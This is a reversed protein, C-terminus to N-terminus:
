FKKMSKVLIYEILKPFIKYMIWNMKGLGSHIVKFKRKRIQNVILQSTKEVPMLKVNSRKPLTELEGKENYFKKDPDNETFSVYAIGVHVNQKHLEIKLSEAVATIAMKSASYSSYFPLGNIGALSSIFLISGHTEKIYPLAFKATYVSGLLNVDIMKKYTELDCNELLGKASLGANNIIIDIKNFTKVTENILKECDSINSVDGPVALIEYGKNILEQKTIDLGEANRANIILKAGLEGLQIALIKGIGMRSGTIIVVKDKFFFNKM